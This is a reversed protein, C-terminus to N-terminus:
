QNAHLRGWIDGVFMIRALTEEIQLDDMDPYLEALKAEAGAPDTALTELLPSLLAKMQQNLQDSALSALLNDLAQEEPEAQQRLVALGAGQPPRIAPQLTLAAQTNGSVETASLVPENEEPEPIQLKDHAWATPITMGMGVLKPLAEAYLTLDEGETVDFELRPHRKPDRYSKCNLAYLPFVLDRTLTAALQKLDADRLEERVENHIKGLANTNTGDGTGSTLTGGLIAKSQSREAWAIMAQYPDSSCKAAEQFEIDMGRPVIGGANHGISMVAQLLKAKEQKSAGNPYKGLRLPLGYIELFEALDRVSYNKFLYPWALIRVLGARALYGSKSKAIHSVWGFPQLAQGGSTTDRLRLQNHNDPHAQFWTAPQHIYGDPLWLNGNRQWDLECCSFVKLIADTLDFRMDDLWTFSELWQQIQAADAKETANANNPPVVQFEISLTARRRKQLESFVHADKEEIDEALACQAMLNGQEAERMLAALRTPTLGNSPHEDWERKLHGVSADGTQPTAFGLTKVARGFLDKLM